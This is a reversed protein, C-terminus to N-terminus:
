SSSSSAKFADKNDFMRQDAVLLVERMKAGKTYSAMGYSLSMRYRMDPHGINWREVERLMREVAVPAQDLRTDPMLILFEDGAYRFVTDSKRFSKKLVESIESLFRDGELHGFKTNVSKFENVDLMLVTFESDAREARSTEMVLMRDMCRRNFLDTLPDTFSLQEAREWEVLGEILAKRTKRLLRRQEFLYVNVLVVLAFFGFIFYPLYEGEVRLTRVDRWSASFFLSAFGAAMVLFLVLFTSWLRTDKGEVSEIERQIDVVGRPRDEMM